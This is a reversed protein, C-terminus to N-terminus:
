HLLKVVRASVFTLLGMVRASVFTQL